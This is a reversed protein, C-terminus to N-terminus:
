DMGKDDRQTRDSPGNVGQSMEILDDRGRAGNGAGVNANNSTGRVAELGGKSGVQLSPSIGGMPSMNTMQEFRGRMNSSASTEGLDSIGVNIWKLVHDPLVQPLAFIMYLVSLLIFGYILMWWSFNHFQAISGVVGTSSSVTGQISFFGKTIYDIIPDSLLISAFLGIIALSPRVFLGILLMYGQTQSGIFSREPTMHMVGWLVVAIISQLVALFWGVVVIMFIGYPMSPLLVSFYMAMPSVIQNIQILANVPVSIAWDWIPTTVKDADVGIGMVKVSSAAGATVRLASVGSKILAISFDTSGSVISLYDGVCKMRNLSGGIQGATGCALTTSNGEADTLTDIIVHMLNGTLNTLKGDIDKQLSSIDVSDASKPILNAIDTPAVANDKSADKLDAKKVITETVTAVTNVLESTRSDGPLMVYSPQVVQGAPIATVTSISTRIAGVRQFWGAADAWGQDTISEVYQQTVSNLSSATSTGGNVSASVVSNEAQSIIDNLKSSDVNSWDSSNLTLPWTAVWSDINQIMQTAASQKEQQLSQHLQELLQESADTVSKATYSTLTMGGCFPLGGALNTTLNNDVFEYSLDGTSSNVAKKGVSPQQGDTAFLSNSLRACYSVALYKNAFDRLGYYEGTKNIGGVIANPSMIGVAIGSKYITNAAGVGWLAIMLVITQLYCYGSSTPMLLGGFTVIRTSTWVSSWNKGLAEGDNATNTVGIILAGSIIISALILIASNFTSFMSALVNTSAAVSNPDGGTVLTDIVGGFISKLTTVSVDDCQGAVQSSCPSFPMTM